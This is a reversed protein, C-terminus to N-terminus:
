GAGAIVGAVLLAIVAVWLAQVILAGTRESDLGEQLTEVRRLLRLRNREEEDSYLDRELAIMARYWEGESLVDEPHAPWAGPSAGREAELAAAVDPRTRLRDRLERIRRGYLHRYTPLGGYAVSVAVMVGLLALAAILCGHSAKGFTAAVTTAIGASAPAPGLGRAFHGRADRLRDREACTRRYVAKLVELDAGPPAPAVEEAGTV